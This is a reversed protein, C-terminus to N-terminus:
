RSLGLILGEVVAVTAAAVTATLWWRSWRREDELQAQLDEALNLTQQDHAELDAVAGRYDEILRGQTELSAQHSAALTEMEILRTRLEDTAKQASSLDNLVGELDDTVTALRDSPTEANAQPLASSLVWLACVFLRM